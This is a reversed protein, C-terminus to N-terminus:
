GWAAFTRDVVQDLPPTGGLTVWEDFAVDLCTLAGQVLLHARLRRSEEPGGVRALALPELLRAWALHKELHRARLSPASMIVRLTRLGTESDLADVLPQMAARIAAHPDEGAPRAAFEAAIKRGFPVPDGVVVDEKAPFYRYFTRASIGVAQCIDDVTLTDFGHEDFLVLAQDAVQARVADRAAGRLDIRKAQTDTM